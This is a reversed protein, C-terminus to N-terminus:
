PLIQTPRYTASFVTQAAMTEMRDVKVTDLALSLAPFSILTEALHPSPIMLNTRM